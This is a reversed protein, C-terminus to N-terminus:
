REFRVGIRYVRGQIDYQGGTTGNAFANSGGNIFPDINTLNRINFFATARTNSIATIDYAFDLDTYIESPATNDNYTSHNVTPAPCGSTCEIGGAIVDMKSFGRLTIGARYPGVAYSARAFFKWEPLNLSGAFDIPPALRTDSVDKLYQTVNLHLDVAGPWSSSLDSLEFHYSAEYDIGQVHLSNYNQTTSTVSILPGNGNPPTGQRVILSCFSPQTGFYCLNLINQASLTAIVNNIKTDWFDVSASFGPIFSPQFVAGVGYTDAKEPTLNQNGVTVQNFQVTNSIAPDTLSARATAPDAFAEQINPARIDRSVAARIKLDEVPSYTTGIKWTTANGFLNYHTYRVAGSLDWRHAFPMDRALPVIAEAAVESVKETGKVQGYNGFVHGGVVSTPDTVADDRDKRHEANFAMSVPGAWLSFPEGTLTIAAVDQRVDLDQFSPSHVYALGTGNNANVGTGLVNIPSCGNNPNTLTSRCVIQGAPNLVADAALKYNAVIINEPQAIYNDGDSRQVYADWKWTKGAIDFDGDAGFLYVKQERRTATNIIGQDFDSTALQFSTINNAVMASRVSAPLYANDRQILPGSTTGVMYPYTVAAKTSTRTYSLQTYVNVHPAIEYSARLFANYRTEEPWIGNTPRLDTYQWDGGQMFLGSTLPGVNLKAPQGGQGFYTNKLPGSVIIGGPASQLYGAGTLRLNQPLGNTATFAPNGVTEVGLRTWDRKGPGVGEDHFAEGALLLHGKGGGFNWGGALSAKYNQSDGYNTVGGSVEGKLGTFSKDLIFNVVGGVANSGYVASAGTTVVDVRQVLQAPVSNVDTIDAANVPAVRRGDLLMLTRSAGLNRLNPANIGSIAAVGTATNSQTTVSSSFTPLQFITQAINANAASQIMEASVVTLPTPAQYGAVVLRSGTVVVESVDANPAAAKAQASAQGAALAVSLLASSALLVVRCISSSNGTRVLTAAGVADHVQTM